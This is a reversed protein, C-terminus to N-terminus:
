DEEGSDDEDKCPFIVNYASNIVCSVCPDTDTCRGACIEHRCYKSFLAKFTAEEESTLASPDSDSADPTDDLTDLEEPEWDRDETDYLLYGDWSADGSKHCDVGVTFPNGKCFFTDGEKLDKFVCETEETTGKRIVKVYRNYDSM